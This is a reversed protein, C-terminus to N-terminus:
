NNKQIHKVGLKGILSNRQHQNYCGPPSSTNSSCAPLGYFKERLVGTVTNHVYQLKTTLVTYEATILVISQM